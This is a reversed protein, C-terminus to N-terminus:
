GGRRDGGPALRPGGNRVGQLLLGDVVPLRRGDPDDGQCIQLPRVGLCRVAHGDRHIRRLHGGDQRFTGQLVAGDDPEVGRRLAPDIASKRVRVLAPEAKDPERVPCARGGGEGDVGGERREVAYQPFCAKQQPIGVGRPDVGIVVAPEIRVPGQAREAGCKVRHCQIQVAVPRGLQGPLDRLPLVREGKVAPACVAGEILHRGAGAQFVASRQHSHLLLTRTRDPQDVATLVIGALSGETGHGKLVAGQPDLRVDGIDGGGRLIRHSDRVGRCPPRGQGM